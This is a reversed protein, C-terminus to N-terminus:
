APNVWVNGICGDSSDWIDNIQGEIIAVIHHGGINAIM